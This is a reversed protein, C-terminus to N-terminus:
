QQRSATWASIADVVSPAIPCLAISSGLYRPLHVSSRPKENETRLNYEQFKTSTFVDLRAGTM